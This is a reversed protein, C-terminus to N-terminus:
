RVLRVFLVAAVFGLSVGSFTIGFQAADSLTVGFKLSEEVQMRAFILWGATVCFSGVVLFVVMLLNRYNV